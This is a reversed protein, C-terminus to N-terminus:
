ETWAHMDSLIQEDADNGLGVFHRNGITFAVANERAGGPLHGHLTWIDKGTDYCLVQDYVEGTTLSGGFHRGGMVYIYRSDTTTATYVRGSPMKARETWRDTAPDFEYWQRENLNKSNWGGGLFCREGVQAGTLSIGHTANKYSTEHATWTDSAIDYEGIQRSYGYTGFGYCAYIKGDLYYAACDNTYDNPFSDLQQWTHTAPTYRWWDRHYNNENYVGGSFGLGVYVDSGVVQATAHVRSGFPVEGLGTWTDTTPDYQWLNKPYGNANTKCADSSLTRGGVIYAKGDVVFATAATRAEPLNTCTEFVLQNEPEQLRNCGCAIGIIALFFPYFHRMSFHKGKRTCLYLFVSLEM